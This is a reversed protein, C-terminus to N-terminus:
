RTVGVGYVTGLALRHPEGRDSGSLPVPLWGVDGCVPAIASSVSRKAGSLTTSKPFGPSSLLPRVCTSALM